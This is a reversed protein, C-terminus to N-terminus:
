PNFGLVTASKASHDVNDHLLAAVAIVTRQKAREFRVCHIADGISCQTIIGSWRRDRCTEVIIRLDIRWFFVM